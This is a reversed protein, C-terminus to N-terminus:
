EQNFLRKYWPTELAKLRDQLQEIVADQAALKEDQKRQATIAQEMLAKYENVQELIGPLALATIDEQDQEGGDDIVVQLQDKIEDVSRRLQSLDRIRALTSIDQETYNRRAQNAEQSLYDAYVKAYRRLTSGPLSLLAKVQKPTYIPPM